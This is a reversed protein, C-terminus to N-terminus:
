EVCLLVQILSCERSLPTSNSWIRCQQGGQWSDRFSYYWFDTAQSVPFHEQLVSGELLMNVMKKIVTWSTEMKHICALKILAVIKQEDAEPLKPPKGSSKPKAVGHLSIHKVLTKSDIVAGCESQVKKM